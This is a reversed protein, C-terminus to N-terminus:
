VVPDARPSHSPRWVQSAIARIDAAGDARRRSRNVRPVGGHSQPGRLSCPRLSSFAVVHRLSGDDGFRLGPRVSARPPKEGKRGAAREKQEGQLGEGGRPELEGEVLGIVRQPGAAEREAIEVMRRHDGEEDPGRGRSKPSESSPTRASDSAKAPASGARIPQIAQRKNPEVSVAASATRIHIAAGSTM